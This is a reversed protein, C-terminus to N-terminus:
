PLLSEGHALAQDLMKLRHDISSSLITLTNRRRAIIRRMAAQATKLKRFIKNKKTYVTFTTSSDGPTITIHFRGDKEILDIKARHIGCGSYINWLVYVFEGAQMDKNNTM